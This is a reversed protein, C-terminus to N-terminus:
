LSLWVRLIDFPSIQAFCEHAISFKPIFQLVIAMCSLGQFSVKLLQNGLAVHLEVSDKSLCIICSSREYSSHPFFIHCGRHAYMYSYFENSISCLVKSVIINFHHIIKSRHKNNETCTILHLSTNPHLPDPSETTM